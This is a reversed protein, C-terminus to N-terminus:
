TGRPSCGLCYLLLRCGGRAGSAPLLLAPLHAVAGPAGLACSPAVTPRPWLPAQLAGPACRARKSAGLPPAPGPRERPCSVEGWREAAAQRRRRLGKPVQRPAKTAKTTQLCSTQRNRPTPAPPAQLRAALSWTSQNGRTRPLHLSISIFGLDPKGSTSEFRPSLLPPPFDRANASSVLPKTQSGKEFLHTQDKGSTHQLPQIRTSRERDIKQLIESKVKMQHPFFLSPIKPFAMRNPSRSSSKRQTSHSTSRVISSLLAQDQECFPRSSTSFRGRAQSLQLLLLDRTRRQTAAEKWIHSPQALCEQTPYYNDQVNRRDALVQLCVLALEESSQSGVQDAQQYGSPQTQFTAGQHPFLGRLASLRLRELFTTSGELNALKQIGWFSTLETPPQTCSKLAIGPKSNGTRFLIPRHLKWILRRCPFLLLKAKSLRM